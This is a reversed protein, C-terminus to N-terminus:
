PRYVSTTNLVVVVVFVRSGYESKNVKFVESM